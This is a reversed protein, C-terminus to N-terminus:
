NAKELIYRIYRIDWLFKHRKTIMMSEVKVRLMDLSLKKVTVIYNEDRLAVTM